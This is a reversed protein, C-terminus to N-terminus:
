AAMPRSFEAPKQYRQRFRSKARHLIVRFCAADVGLQECVDTRPREELFVMSLARHDKKPICRLTRRVGGQLEELAIEKEVSPRADPIGSHDDECTVHRFEARTLERRVNNCVGAVYAFLRDPSKLKQESARIAILVRLLTEQRIDEILEASRIRGRLQRVILAGFFQAFHNEVESVRNHLQRVYEASAPTFAANENARTM